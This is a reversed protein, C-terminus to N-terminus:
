KHAGTPPTGRAPSNNHPNESSTTPYRHYAYVFARVLLPPVRFYIDSVPVEKGSGCLM